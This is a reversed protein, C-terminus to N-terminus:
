YGDEVEPEPAEVEVLGLTTLIFDKAYSDTSGWAEYDAGAMVVPVVGVPTTDNFLSISFTASSDLVISVAIDISISNIWPKLECTVNIM